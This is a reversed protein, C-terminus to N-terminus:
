HLKHLLLPPTVSVGRRAINLGNERLVRPWLFLLWSGRNPCLPPQIEVYFMKLNEKLSPTEFYWPADYM